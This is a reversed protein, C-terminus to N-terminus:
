NKDCAEKAKQQSEFIRKEKERLFDIRSGEWRAQLVQKFGTKINHYFTWYRDGVEM